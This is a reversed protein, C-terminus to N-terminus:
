RAKSTRIKVVLRVDFHLEPNDTLYHEAPFIQSPAVGVLQNGM